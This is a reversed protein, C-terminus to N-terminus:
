KVITKSLSTTTIQYKVTGATSGGVTLNVLGVAPQDIVCARFHPANVNSCTLGLLTQPSAMSAAIKLGQITSANEANVTIVIRAVGPNVTLKYDDIRNSPTLTGMQILVESGETGLLAFTTARKGLDLGAELAIWKRYKFISADYSQDNVTCDTDTGGSTVGVVDPVQGRIREFLLPGGSDKNCTNSRSPAALGQDFSWCLQNGDKPCSNADICQCAKLIVNGTRKIGADFNQNGTRGFGVIQAESGPRPDPHASVPMPAIAEVQRKLHVIGVDWDPFRFSAPIAVRETEFIGANQLFVLYNKAMKDKSLCHAATLMTVPGILTGTCYVDFQGDTSKLLAGVAPYGGTLVGNVIRPTLLSTTGRADKASQYADLKIKADSISSAPASASRQAAAIAAANQEREFDSISLLAKVEAHSTHVGGLCAVGVILSLAWVLRRSWARWAAVRRGGRQIDSM